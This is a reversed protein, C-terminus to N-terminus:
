PNTSPNLEDGNDEEIEKDEIDPDFKVGNDDAPAAEESEKREHKSMTLAMTAAKQEPEELIESEVPVDVKIPKEKINNATAYGKKHHNKLSLEEATPAMIILKNDALQINDVLVEFDKNFMKIIQKGIISIM